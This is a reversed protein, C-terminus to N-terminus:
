GLFSFCQDPDLARAHILQDNIRKTGLDLPHLGVLIECGTRLPQQLSVFFQELAQGM